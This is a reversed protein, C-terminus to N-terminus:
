ESPKEEFTLRLVCGGGKPALNTLSIQAANAFRWLFENSILTRDYYAFQDRKGYKHDVWDAIREENQFCEPRALNESMILAVSRFQGNIVNYFSSFIVGGFTDTTEIVDVGRPMAPRLVWTRRHENLAVKLNALSMGFRARGFGLLPPRSHM